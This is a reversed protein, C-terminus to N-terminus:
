VKWHLMKSSINKAWIIREFVMKNPSVFVCPINKCDCVVSSHLM